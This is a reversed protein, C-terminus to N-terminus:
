YFIKPLGPVKKYFPEQGRQKPPMIDRFLYFFRIPLDFPGLLEKM